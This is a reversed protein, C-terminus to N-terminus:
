RSISLRPVVTFESESAQECASRKTCAAIIVGLESSQRLQCSCTVSSSPLSSKTMGKAAASPLNCQPKGHREGLAEAGDDGPVAGEKSNDGLGVAGFQVVHATRAWCPAGLRRQYILGLRRQAARGPSRYGLSM